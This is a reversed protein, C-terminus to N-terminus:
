ENSTYEEMSEDLIVPLGGSTELKLQNNRLSLRNMQLYCRASKSENMQPINKELNM